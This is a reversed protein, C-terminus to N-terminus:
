QTPKDKLLNCFCGKRNRKLRGYLECYPLIDSELEKKCNACIYAIDAYDGNDKFAAVQHTAANFVFSNRSHFM